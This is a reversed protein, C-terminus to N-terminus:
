VLLSQCAKKQLIQTLSNLFLGLLIQSLCGKFFKVQDMRSIKVLKYNILGLICNRSNYLETFKEHRKNYLTNYFDLTKDTFYFDSFITIWLFGAFRWVSKKVSLTCPLNNSMKSTWYPFNKLGKQCKRIAM